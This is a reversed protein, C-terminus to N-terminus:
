FVCLIHNCINFVFGGYGIGVTFKICNVPITGSNQGTAGGLQHFIGKGKTLSGISSSLINLLDELEGFNRVKNRKSIDRVYIESFLNKLATAEDSSEERLVVLPIGGYLMYQSLGEYKDGPYVSM